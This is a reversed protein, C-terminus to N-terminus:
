SLIVKLCTLNPMFKLICVSHREYIRFSLAVKSSLVRSPFKCKFYINLSVQHRAYVGNINAEIGTIIQPTIPKCYGVKTKYDEEQLNNVTVVGYCICISVTM